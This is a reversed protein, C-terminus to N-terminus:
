LRAGGRGASHLIKKHTGPLVGRHLFSSVSSGEGWVGELPSVGQKLAQTDGCRIGQSLTVGM